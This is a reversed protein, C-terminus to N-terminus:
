PDLVQCTHEKYSLPHPRTVPDPILDTKLNVVICKAADDIFKQHIQPASVLPRPIAPWLLAGNFKIYFLLNGWFCGQPTSGPISRSSSIVGKYRVKLSRNTLYSIFMNLLWGPVHMYYLDQIVHQHSVRNFAKELDICAMIIALPQAKDLNSHIFQLIRILYHSTSSGRLGGCQSPDLYPDVIPLVWDGLISEFVKSLFPTASILRLSEESVPPFSKPIPNTHELVWQRTYQGSQLCKNYILTAPISLKVPLKKVVKPPLDGPVTGNPKRAQVIKRHVCYEELIPINYVRTLKSQICPPLTSINVPDYEQSIKSWYNAFWEASQQPSLNM